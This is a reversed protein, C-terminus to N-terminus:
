MAASPDESIEAELNLASNGQFSLVFAGCRCEDRSRWRRVPEGCGPNRYAHARSRRTLFVTFKSTRSGVVEIVAIPRTLGARDQGEEGPSMGGRALQAHASVLLGDEPGPLRSRSSSWRKM